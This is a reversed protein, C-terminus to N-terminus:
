WQNAQPPPPSPTPSEASLDHEWVSALTVPDLSKLRGEYTAVTLLAGDRSWDAWQVDALEVRRDGIQLWYASPGFRTPEFARFAAHWGSVRLVREEAGPCPKEMTVQRRQDWADDPARPPTDATEVWGRRREVAFSAARTWALGYRQRCPAPDGIDPGDAPWVAPDEVFHVGQTWTSGIGWAALATLWPLRSLSVYATGAPWDAHQNLM